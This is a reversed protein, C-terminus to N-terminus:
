EDFSDCSLLTLFRKVAVTETDGPVGGILRLLRCYEFIDRWGPTILIERIQGFNYATRTDDAMYARRRGTQRNALEVAM